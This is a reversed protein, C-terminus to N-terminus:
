QAAMAHRYPAHAGPHAFARGVDARKVARAVTFDYAVITDV